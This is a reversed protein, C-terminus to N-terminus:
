LAPAEVGLYLIFSDTEIKEKWSLQEIWDAVIYNYPSYHYAEIVEYRKDILVATPFKYPFLELYDLFDQNFVSTGQVSAVSIQADTCLYLLNESGFYFLNDESTLNEHLLSYGDNLSVALDRTVWIGKAPGQTIKDMDANITVPLCGNVRILILKCVLLSGLLFLLPLYVYQRLNDEEVLLLLMLVCPFLKSYAVNLTMNTLLLTAILSVFCPVIGFWLLKSQVGESSKYSPKRLCIFLCLLAVFLYRVQGFFQNEDNLLCGWMQYLCLIVIVLLGAKLGIKGWQEKKAEVPDAPSMNRRNCLYMIAISLGMLVAILLFDGGFEILFALFKEGFPVTSHSPDSVLYNIGRFFEQLNMYSFLYAIFALGPIVASLTVLGIEKKFNGKMKYIGLMYFPYLIIMSPYNFLQLMMCFGAIMLYVPKGKRYYHLFCLLIILFLWYHMLEFEPTQVWKPLFNLHLFFVLGSSTASLRSRFSCALWAGLLIHIITGSIRLFVVAYETSGTLLTYLKLFLASLYASFQHPEWMTLLLRDGITLRYSQAIAYSEDIDLSVFLTKIISLVSLLIIGSLILFRFWKPLTRNDM